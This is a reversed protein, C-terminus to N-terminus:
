EFINFFYITIYVAFKPIKQFPSEIMPPLGVKIQSPKKVGVLWSNLGQRIWM